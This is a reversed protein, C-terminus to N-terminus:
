KKHMLFKLESMGESFCSTLLQKYIMLISEGAESAKSCAAFCM